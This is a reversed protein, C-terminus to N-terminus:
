LTQEMQELLEEFAPKWKPGGLDPYLQKLTRLGQTVSTIQKTRNPNNDIQAAAFRAKAANYRADFYLDQYKAVNQRAAPDDGAAQNAKRRLYDAVKAIRLWGWVLNKQNAQPMTGRISQEIKEVDQEDAGWKQLVKATARQLELISPKEILIKTYQEYAAQYQQRAQLCDGLRKRVGLVAQPSPAYSADKEVEALLKRFSEEAQSLYRDAEKGVLGEGLQLNTHAVWNQIKWDGVDSRRSVRDLLNAFSAAVARAKANEGAATLNKLQRQLQLGLSIYINTLQQEADAQGRTLRDLSDMLKQAAETRPPEVSVYARLAAKFVEQTFEPRQKEKSSRQAVSLPGIRPHELVEVAKEFHGDALLLQVYYLLGTAQATSTSESERLSQYGQTLLENARQKLKQTEESPAENNGRTQQQYRNWFAGGLSLEAPARRTAPLQALLKEAEAIRNERLSINILLNAAVAAEDANPWRQVIFEAINVLPQRWQKSVNTKGQQRATSYLHDYAALALKAAIPAFKHDTHKRAIADGLAAAETYRHDEWFLWSLYYRVEVLADSPTDNNAMSLSKELLDLAASRNEAAQQQLEEVAEPNNEAALKAALKSSNMLDLAAKGAAFAEDFSEVHSPRNNTRTTSALAVRAEAQFEGSHRSVKRFLKRAESQLRRAETAPEAEKAELQYAGALRFAVALWEPQDREEGSSHNLWDQCEEIAEEFNEEALHCEARRRYARAILRRFEADGTPQKIVDQYCALALRYSGAAQYCRGEYLRSYFGVRKGDYDQYLEAFAEAAVKLAKNRHKSKKSYSRAKEFSLNALLFRGEAQKSRLLERTARAQPDAQLAAGKPFAVLLEQSRDLMEQVTASAVDLLKRAEAGIQDREASAGAPLRDAKALFLLAQETLLKGAQSLADVGIPSDRHTQAFRQFGTTAQKLLSLRERGSGTNKSLQVQTTAREFDLRDLFEQSALPDRDAQDLYEIAVDHWGRQRLGELFEAARDEADLRTASSLVIWSCVAVVLWPGLRSAPQSSSVSTVSVGKKSVFRRFVLEALRTTPARKRGDEQETDSGMRCTPAASVLHDVIVPTLHTLNRDLTM